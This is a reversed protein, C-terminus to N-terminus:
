RDPAAPGAAQEKRIERHRRGLDCRGSDGIGIFSLRKPAEAHPELPLDEAFETILQDVTMQRHAAEASLRAQVEAKLHLTVVM